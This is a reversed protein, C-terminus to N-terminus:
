RSPPTCALLRPYLSGHAAEPPLSPCRAPFAAPLPCDELRSVEARPCSAGLSVLASAALSGLGFEAVPVLCWPVVPSQQESSRYSLSGAREQEKRQPTMGM